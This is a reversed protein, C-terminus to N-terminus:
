NSSKEGATSLHFYPSEKGAGDSFRSEQKHLLVMCGSEGMGSVAGALYQM